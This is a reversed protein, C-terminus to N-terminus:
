YEVREGMRPRRLQARGAEREEAARGGGKTWEGDTKKSQYSCSLSSPLTSQLPAVGDVMTQYNMLLQKVHQEKTKM